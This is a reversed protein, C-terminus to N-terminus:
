VRRTLDPQLFLMREKKKRRNGLHELVVLGSVLRKGLSPTANTGV